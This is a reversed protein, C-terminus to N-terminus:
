EHTQCTRDGIKVMQSRDQRKEKAVTRVYETELIRNKHISIGNLEYKGMRLWSTLSPGM